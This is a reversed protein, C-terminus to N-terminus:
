KTKDKLFFHIHKFVLEGINSIMNHTKLYPQKLIVTRNQTNEENHFVDCFIVILWLNM